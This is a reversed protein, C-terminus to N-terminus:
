EATKQRIAHDIIGLFSGWVLHAVIMLGIRKKGEEKPTLIGAAPLWGLYSGAWIILGYASGKCAPHWSVGKTVLPYLAGTGAGYGYHAITAAAQRKKQKRVPIQFGAVKSLRMAIKKPPLSQKRTLPLFRHQLKMSLTMPFTAVFGSVAGIIMDNCFKNLLTTRM